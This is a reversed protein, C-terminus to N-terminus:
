FFSTGSHRKKKKQPPFYTSVLLHGSNVLLAGFSVLLLASNVLLHGSNVLLAGFSVLLLASNVLLHGSNVLLADFSM